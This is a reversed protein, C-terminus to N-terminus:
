PQRTIFALLNDRDIMERDKRPLDLADLAAITERM